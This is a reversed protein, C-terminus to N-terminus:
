KPPSRNWYCNLKYLRQLPTSSFMTYHVPGRGFCHIEWGWIDATSLQAIKAWISLLPWRVAPFPSPVSGGMLPALKKLSNRLVSSHPKGRAPVTTLLLRDHQGVREQGRAKRIAATHLGVFLGLNPVWPFSVGWPVGWQSRGETRLDRTRRRKDM